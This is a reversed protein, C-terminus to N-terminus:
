FVKRDGLLELGEQLLDNSSKPIEKSHWPVALDRDLVATITEKRIVHQTSFLLYRRRIVKAQPTVVKRM